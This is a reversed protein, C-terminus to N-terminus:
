RVGAQVSFSEVPEWGAGNDRWLDIPEARRGSSLAVAWKRAEVEGPMERIERWDVGRIGWRVTTSMTM